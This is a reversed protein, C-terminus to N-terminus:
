ADAPEEANEAFRQAQLRFLYAYRGDTAMLEDHSGLEIVRGHEIVAIKHAHRVTSFRHSILITSVGRTIELFRDFLEAEARVDLNATPEDLVLVDAGGELAMLARALAIRQWQGGSLDIGGEYGRSLVTNWGDSFTEVIATAGAKAAARDLATEDRHLEVAGFGVNAGAELEFRVFDQFIVGIRKRWAAPEIEKIDIGGVTIRGGDPDYLRALLKTLTTKGAGNLGVIALSEGDAVDLTLGDLIKRETGPYAFTVNEFRIPGAESITRTGQLDAAPTELRERLKALRAITKFARRMSTENDGSHGLSPTLNWAGMYVAFEAISIEKTWVAHALVAMILSEIALHSFFYHFLPGRHGRRMQWIPQMARKWSSAYTDVLWKGLGFVRIEKAADAEVALNRLYTVRRLEPTQKEQSSVLTNIERDLWRYGFALDILTILPAWWAFRALVIAGGIGAAKRSMVQMFNQVFREAYWRQEDSYVFEIEDATEPAELHAVGAPGLTADLVMHRLRLAFRSSLMRSIVSEFHGFASSGVYLLGLVVLARVLRSGDPSSLGTRIAAPLAAIVVGTQITFATPLLGGMVLAAINSVTLPASASWAIRLPLLWRSLRERV